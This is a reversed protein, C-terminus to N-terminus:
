KPHERAARYTSLRKEASTSDAGHEPKRRKPEVLIYDVTNDHKAIITVGEEITLTAPSKVTYDGTLYYTKGAALTVDSTVTGKLEEIEQPKSGSAATWGATWDNDSPVAGRYEAADFFSDATSM